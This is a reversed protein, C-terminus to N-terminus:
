CHWQSGNATMDTVHDNSPFYSVFYNDRHCTDGTAPGAEAAIESDIAALKAASARV